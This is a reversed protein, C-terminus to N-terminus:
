LHEYTLKLANKASFEVSQHLLKHAQFSKKTFLETCTKADGMELNVHVTITFFFVMLLGVPYLKNGCHCLHMRATIPIYKSMSKLQQGSEPSM